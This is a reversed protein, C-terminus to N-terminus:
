DLIVQEPITELESFTAIVNNGDCLESFTGRELIEVVEVWCAIQGVNGLVIVKGAFYFKDKGSKFLLEQGIELDQIEYETLGKARLVEGGGADM